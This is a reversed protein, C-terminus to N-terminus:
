YCNKTKKILPVFFFCGIMFVHLTETYYIINSSIGIFYNTFWLGALMLSVDSLLEAHVQPVLLRHARKLLFTGGCSQRKTRETHERSMSNYM